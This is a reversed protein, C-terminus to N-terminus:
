ESGGGTPPAATSPNSAARPVGPAWVIDGNDREDFGGDDKLNAGISYLVFGDGKRRYVLPRGSFIDDPIPVGDIHVDSLTGPFAGNRAKYEHIALAALLLARRAIAADRDQVYNAFHGMTDGARVFPFLGRETCCRQWVASSNRWPYPSLERAKALASLPGLLEADYLPSAFYLTLAHPALFGKADNVAQELAGDCDAGCFGAHATAALSPNQHYWRHLELLPRLSYYIGEAHAKVYDLAGLEAALKRAARPPIACRDLVQAAAVLMARDMSWAFHPPGPLPDHCFHRALVFGLRLREAAAADNGRAAEAVASAGLAVALPKVRPAVWLPGMYRDDEPVVGFQCSQKSAAERLLGLAPEVRAAWMRVSGPAGFDADGPLEPGGAELIRAAEVYLPAANDPCPPRRALAEAMRVPKGETKLERLRLEVAATPWLCLAVLGTLLALWVWLTRRPRRRVRSVSAAM